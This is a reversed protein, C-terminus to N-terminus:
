KINKPVTFSLSNVCYPANVLAEKVVSSKKKEELSADQSVPVIYKQCYQILYRIKGPAIKM